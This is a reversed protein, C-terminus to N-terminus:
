AKAKGEELIYFSKGDEGQKIVYDGDKYEHTKFADSIKIRENENMDKLIDVNKIFDDWKQRRNAYALIVINNFCERDLAYCLSEGVSYISAARPANYLM